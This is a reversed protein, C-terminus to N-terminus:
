LIKKDKKREEFQPIESKKAILVLGAAMLVFNKLVLEGALSLIPFRPEFGFSIFIPISIFLLSVIMVSSALKVFRNSLFSLGILIEILAIVLLFIQSHGLVPPFTNEIIELVPSVNFLKLIGFWFFGIGMSVRLLLLARTHLFEM